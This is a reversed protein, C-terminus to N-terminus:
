SGNDRSRKPGRISDDCNGIPLAINGDLAEAEVSTTYERNVV